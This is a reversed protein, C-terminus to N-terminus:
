PFSLPRVKMMGFISKAVQVLILFYFGVLLLHKGVAAWPGAVPEYNNSATPTKVESKNRDKESESDDSDEDPPARDM